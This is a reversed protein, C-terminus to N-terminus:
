LSKNKLIKLIVFITFLTLTLYIVFFLCVDRLSNNKSIFIWVLALIMDLLLKLSLAVLTHLTAYDPGRSYGRLFIFVTIVSILSFLSSLIIIDHLAMRLGSLSIFLFGTCAILINLLALLLLYRFLQRM